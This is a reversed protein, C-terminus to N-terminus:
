TLMARAEDRLELARAWDGEQACKLAKEYRAAAGMWDPGAPAEDPVRLEERLPVGEFASVPKRRLRM